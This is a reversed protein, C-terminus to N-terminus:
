NISDRCYPCSKTRALWPDLCVEHFKHRCSLTKINRNHHQFRNNEGSLCISCEFEDTISQNGNKVEIVFSSYNLSEQEDFTYYEDKIDKWESEKKVKGEDTEMIAIYRFECKYFGCNVAKVHKKCMPCQTPQKETPLGLKFICPVGMNIIVFNNFAECNKNKCKGELCLGNSVIRWDPANEDKKYEIGKKTVDVFNFDFCTRIKCVNIDDGYFLCVEIPYDWDNFISNGIALYTNEPTLGKNYKNMIDKLTVMDDRYNQDCYIGPDNLDYIRIQPM